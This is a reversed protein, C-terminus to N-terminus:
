GLEPASKIQIWLTDAQALLEGNATLLASGTTHKRGESRQHWGIVTIREDARPLRDIRACISGLVALGPDGPIAFYSPCDLAAWVIEPRVTGTSDAFESAPRWVDAVGDFGEVPGAFLRLGCGPERAPGCVFCTPFPHTDKAFSMAGQQATEFPPPTPVVGEPSRGHAYMVLTDGHVVELREGSDRVDLQTDLPPPSRLSVLAPGELLGALVGACYGGNGSTPPGNFKSAINIHTPRNM